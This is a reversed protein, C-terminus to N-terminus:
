GNPVSAQRPQRAQIRALLGLIVATPSTSTQLTRQLSQRLPQTAAEEADGWRIIKVWKDREPDKYHVYFHTFREVQETPLDSYNQIDDYIPHLQKV